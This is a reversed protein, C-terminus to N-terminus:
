LSACKEEELLQAEHELFWQYTRSLGEELGVGPTWGISRIWSSDLLKEPAGDPRTTDWRVEGEFGIVRAAQAAIERISHAAGVGIQVPTTLSDKELLLECASSLDDVYLFERRPSGSGWLTVERRGEKKAEHFRRILASIVHSENLDFSDGPGYVTAPILTWYGTQHQRNYSDCLTLGAWKAIAYPQSTPEMKGTMLHEPRMPQPSEKPYMCSSGFNILRKVGARFSGHILNAEIMLNEYIFDAPYTSNGLIGGVRGAAIVVADPRTRELFEEVAEQRTLDLEDREATILKSHRPLFHRALASGILGTHGAIYLSRIEERKNQSTTASVRPLM